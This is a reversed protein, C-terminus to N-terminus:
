LGDLQAQKNCGYARGALLAGPLRRDGLVSSANFIDALGVAFLREASSGAIWKLTRIVTEAKAANAM